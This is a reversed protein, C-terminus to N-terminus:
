GTLGWQQKRIRELVINKRIKHNEERKGLELKLM